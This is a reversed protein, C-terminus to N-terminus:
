RFSLIIDDCISSKSEVPILCGNRLALNLPLREGHERPVWSDVIKVGQHSLESKPAIYGVTTSRKREEFRQKHPFLM